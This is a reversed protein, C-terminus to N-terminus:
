NIYMFFRDHMMISINIYFERTSIHVDECVFLIRNYISIHILRYITM